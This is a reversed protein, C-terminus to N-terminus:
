FNLTLLQPSTVAITLLQSDPTPQCNKAAGPRGCVGRLILVSNLIPANVGRWLPGNTAPTNTPKFNMKAINFFGFNAKQEEIINSKIQHKGRGYDGRSLPLQSTLTLLTL